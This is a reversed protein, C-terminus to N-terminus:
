LLKAAVIVTYDSPLNELEIRAVALIQEDDALGSLDIMKAGILLIISPMVKGADGWQCHEELVALIKAEVEKVAAAIVIGNRSQWRIAGKNDLIRCSRKVTKDLGFWGSEHREAIYAKYFESQCALQVATKAARMSNAAIELQEDEGLPQERNEGIDLSLAGSATARVINQRSDVEVHVSVTKVDAGMREVANAAESRVRLIDDRTPNIIQREVIERLLALAVGIASIVDSHEALKHSMSLQKALYPVIAAAGGGGGVLMTFDADLKYEKLLAKVVPRLKNTSESLITEALRQPQTGLEKALVSFIASLSEQKGYACNDSPVLGLLNAACTPTICISPKNEGQCSFVAYDPTDGPLPALLEFKVAQPKDTFSAYNLAAIHASRPGVDIVQNHRVRPISGGAIGSTRVDLTRTYIRNGGIEGSTVLARGNKIAAIDTSTGGVELFIGDSIRLFMTAAAVGAAPGSLITLIPRKRMSDLDMVGGDSRMIMLPATIGADRVSNQTMEATELMKPLISANIVATRTRVSLGYLKSVETGSTALLNMKQALALAMVENQPNDVAFSESIVIVQAGESILEAFKQCILQDDPTKTTEIFRHVTHIFRHASIPVRGLRTAAHALAASAGAGMGLIGVKAVDGELLANTAQTTSHAIANVQRPEIHAEDLLKRLVAIIGAAVGAAARHTTPVKAKGIIAFTQADLAAAHTFTGGVDIGIRVKNSNMTNM